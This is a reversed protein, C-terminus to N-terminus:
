SFADYIQIKNCVRFRIKRTPNKRREDATRKYANATKTSDAGFFMPFFRFAVCRFSSHNLAFNVFIPNLSRVRCQSAASDYSRLVDSSFLIKKQQLHLEENM